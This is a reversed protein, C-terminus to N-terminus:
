RARRELSLRRSVWAPLTSARGGLGAGLVRAAHHLTSPVLVTAVRIRSRDHARSWRWDAGVRGKIERAVARPALPASFGYIEAVARAEDFGRRLWGWVGYDHSHVVAAGPEYVKAYGARLMDHALLHDEAYAVARFPVRQWAERSM